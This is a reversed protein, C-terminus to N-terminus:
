SVMLPMFVAAASSPSAPSPASAPQPICYDGVGGCGALDPELFSQFFGGSGSACAADSELNILEVRSKVRCKRYIGNLHTEVIKESIFLAEATEKNRM